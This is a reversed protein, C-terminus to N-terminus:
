GQTPTPQYIVPMTAGPTVVAIQQATNQYQATQRQSPNLSSQGYQPAPAPQSQAGPYNLPQANPPITSKNSPASQIQGAIPQGTSLNAMIPRPAPQNTRQGATQPTVPLPGPVNSVTDFQLLNDITHGEGIPQVMDPYETICIPPREYARFWNEPPLYTYGYLQTGLPVTNLPNTQTFVMENTYSERIKNKARNEEEVLEHYLHKNIPVISKFDRIDRDEASAPLPPPIQVTGLVEDQNSPGPYISPVVPPDTVQYHERIPCKPKSLFSCTTIVLVMIIIVLVILEINSLKDDAFARILFYLIATLGLYKIGDILSIM